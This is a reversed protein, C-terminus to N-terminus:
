PELLLWPLALGRVVDGLAEYGVPKVLYSSVGLAYAENVMNADSSGTLMVVAVDALAPRAKIFRLVDMGSRDPLTGDLLVLVPPRGSPPDDLASMAAEADRAEVIPNVLRLQTLSQRIILAALADDEVVLIWAGNM